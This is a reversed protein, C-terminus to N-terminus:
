TPNGNVSWGHAKVIQRLEEELATFASLSRLPSFDDTLEAVRRGYESLNISHRRRGPLGSAERMVQRLHSKPDPLQEVDTPRPLALSQKGNPDGAARRLAAQDFLLWAESMRIPVVCLAPPRAVDSLGGWAARIERVRTERPEREADRHVCLLDCPFFELCLRMRESLGKPPKGFRSLDAWDSEIAREVVLARLAWTIIPILARDSPGDSLLTLRISTM